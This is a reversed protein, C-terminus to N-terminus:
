EKKLKAIIEEFLKIDEPTLKEYHPKVTNGKSRAVVKVYMDGNSDIKNGYEDELGLLFDSTTDFIKCLEKISDIDPETRGQEWSAYKNHSCGLIKVIDSQTFGKSLRLEKLRNAIMFFIKVCIVSFPNVKVM